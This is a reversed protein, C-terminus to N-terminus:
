SLITENVRNMIMIVAPVRRIRNCRSMKKRGGKVNKERKCKKGRKGEGKRKVGEKETVTRQGERKGKKDSGGGTQLSNCCADRRKRMREKRNKSEM